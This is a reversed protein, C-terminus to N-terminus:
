RDTALVAEGDEHLLREMVAYSLWVLPFLKGWSNKLKFAQRRDSVGYICVCHGENTTAHPNLGEPAIWWDSGHRQEPYDFESYWNVGIAVSQGGAVSTRIEDVRTAWRNTAVGDEPRRASDKRVPEPVDQADLRMSRVRYPGEDRLVDYAARLYTGNQDGPNTSPDGDVRKAENWLDIPDYRVTPRKIGLARNQLINTIAREMASGHGICSGEMGQDHSWHWSPLVLVKEAEAVPRPALARLPYKDVHAWDPPVNRGFHSM